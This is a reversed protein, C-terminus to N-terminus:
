NKKWPAKHTTNTKRTSKCMCSRQSYHLLDFYLALQRYCFLLFGFKKRIFAPETPDEPSYFKERFFTKRKTRLVPNAPYIYKAHFYRGRTTTALFSYSCNIARIASRVFRMIPTLKLSCSSFPSRRPPYANTLNQLFLIRRKFSLGLFSKIANGMSHFNSVQFHNVVGLV